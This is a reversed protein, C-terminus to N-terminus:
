CALSLEKQAMHVVLKLLFTKKLPEKVTHLLRHRLKDAFTPLLSPARPSSLQVQLVLKAMSLHEPITVVTDLKLQKKQAMELSQQCEEMSYNVKLISKTLSNLLHKQSPSMNIMSDTHMKRLSEPRLNCQKIRCVWLMVGILRHFNHLLHCRPRKRQHQQHRWIDLLRIYQSIVLDM